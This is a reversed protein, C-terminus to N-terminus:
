TLYQFPCLFFICCFPTPILLCHPTEQLPHAPLHIVSITVNAYLGLFVLLLTVSIHFFIVRLSFSYATCLDQPFFPGPFNLSYPPLWQPKFLSLSLILLLFITLVPTLSIVLPCDRADRILILVKAKVRLSM